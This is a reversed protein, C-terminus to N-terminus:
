QPIYNCITCNYFMNWFIIVDSTEKIKLFMNVYFVGKFAANSKNFLVARNFKENISKAWCNYGSYIVKIDSSRKSASLIISWTKKQIIIHWSLFYESRYPRLHIYCYISCNVKIIFAHYKCCHELFDKGKIPSHRRRKRRSWNAAEINWDQEKQGKRKWHQSSRLM